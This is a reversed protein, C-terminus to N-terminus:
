AFQVFSKLSFVEVCSPIDFRAKMSLEEEIESEAETEFEGGFERESYKKFIPSYFENNHYILLPKDNAIFEAFISILFVSCFIFLSFYARKNKKFNEWRRKNLPSM